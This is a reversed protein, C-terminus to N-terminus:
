DRMRDAIAAAMRGLAERAHLAYFVERDAAILADTRRAQSERWAAALAEVEPRCAAVIEANVTRIAEFVRRRERRAARQARLADSERVLEARHEVLPPPASRLTRHPNFAIDRPTAPSGSAAAVAIPLRLTASVCLLPPLDVGLWERFLEDTVEDYKAGGIGHIFVDALILRCFASLTLARPRIMWGAAPITGGEGAVRTLKAREVTEIPQEDAFLTLETGHDHIGLRHRWRDGDRRCVWFPLEIRGEATELPPVPRAPNRVRHRRRYAAQARNYADAARGADLAFRATFAGFEPTEALESMLADRVPALGMATQTARHGAAFREALSGRRSMWAESYETMLSDRVGTRAGALARFVPEWEADAPRDHLEIPTNPDIGPLPATHRAVRGGDVSPWSVLLSKPTDSDVHVFLPNGGVREALHRAAITKAFVGAHFFECQHGTMIVPGALDLRARLSRRLQLVWEPLPAGRLLAPISPEILVAGDAAPTRLREHPIM